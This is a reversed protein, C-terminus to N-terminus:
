IHGVSPKQGTWAEHPTMGNLTQSPLHNRIYAAALIAEAWLELPAESADLMTCAKDFLTRNMREAVGNSQPSYGATPNYEIGQSKIYDIMEGMYEMGRDTRLEKIKYGSQREAWAQYEKFAKLVTPASKNPLVYVMGHSTCDDTFTLVHKGGGHSTVDSECLDSHVLELPKGRRRRRPPFPSCHHKGFICPKCPLSSQNEYKSKDILDTLDLDEFASQGYQLLTDKSVHALREHLDTLTLSKSAVSAFLANLDGAPSVGSEGWVCLGNRIPSHIKFEGDSVTCGSMEITSKWGLLALTNLSMLGCKLKPVHLVGKLTRTNGNLDQITVKGIGVAKLGSGIGGVYLHHKLPHYDIFLSKDHHMHHTAGNDKIWVGNVRRMRGNIAAKLCFALGGFISTYAPISGTTFNADAVNAQSNAGGRGGRGGKGGRGGSSGHKQSKRAQQANYMEAIRKHCNEEAHNTKNCHSCPPFIINPKRPPFIHHSPQAFHAQVSDFDREVGLTQGLGALNLRRGEERVRGKFETISLNDIFAMQSQIWNGCIEVPLSNAHLVILEDSDITKGIASLSQVLDDFIREHDLLSGTPSMDLRYLRRLLSFKRQKDNSAHVCQLEDWAGKATKGYHIPGQLQDSVTFSIIRLAEENKEDWEDIEKQLQKKQAATLAVEIEDPNQTAETFTPRILEGNVVKWVKKESLLMRCQFSWTHYTHDCLKDIGYRSRHSNEPLNDAM